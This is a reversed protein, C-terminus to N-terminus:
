WAFKPATRNWPMQALLLAMGCKDSIGAFMLGAGVFAPLGLIVPHVLAGLVTGALVLLGAAIRVQRELSISKVAQREVPLGALIWGATGGEVLVCRSVGAQQLRAIAQKARTGSHCLIYLPAQASSSILDKVRAVQLTELPELVAGPVHVQAYERATRVDLLHIDQGAAIKEGLSQPTISNM